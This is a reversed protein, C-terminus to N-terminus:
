PPLSFLRRKAEKKMKLNNFHEPHQVARGLFTVDHKKKNLTHRFMGGPHCKSLQMLIKRVHSLAPPFTQFQWCQLSTLKPPHSGQAPARAINLNNKVIIMFWTLLHKLSHKYTHPTKKTHHYFYPKPFFDWKKTPVLSKTWSHSVCTSKFSIKRAWSPVNIM